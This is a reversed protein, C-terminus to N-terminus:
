RLWGSVTQIVLESGLLWGILALVAVWILVLYTLFKLNPEKIESVGVFRSDYAADGVKSIGVGGVETSVSNKEGDQLAKARLKLYFAKAKAEDGEAQSFARAWTAEHKERALERAAEQWAADSIEDDLMISSVSLQKTTSIAKRRIYIYTAAYVGLMLSSGAVLEQRSMGFPGFVSLNEMQLAALGLLLASGFVIKLYIRLKEYDKNYLLWSLYGYVMVMVSSFPTKALSAYFLQALTVLCWFAFVLKYSGSMKASNM